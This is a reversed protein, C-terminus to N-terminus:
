IQCYILKDINLRVNHLLVSTITFDLTFRLLIQLFLCCFYCLLLILVNYVNKFMLMYILVTSRGYVKYFIFRTYRGSNVCPKRKRFFFFSVVHFDQTVFQYFCFYLLLDHFFNNVFLQSLGILIIYLKYTQLSAEFKWIYVWSIEVQCCVIRPKINDSVKCRSNFLHWLGVYERKAVDFIQAVVQVWCVEIFNFKSEM